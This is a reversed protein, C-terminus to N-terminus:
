EEGEQEIEEEGEQEIEEEGGQEQHEQSVIMLQQGLLLFVISPHIESKRERGRENKRGRERERENKTERKKNVM